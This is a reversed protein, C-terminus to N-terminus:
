KYAEQNYQKMWSEVLWSIPQMKNSANKKCEEYVKPNISLNVRTKYEKTPPSYRGFM